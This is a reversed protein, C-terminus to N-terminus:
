RIPNRLVSRAYTDLDPFVAFPLGAAADADPWPAADSARLLQAIWSLYAQLPELHAGALSRADFRESRIRLVPRSGDAGAGTVADILLWPEPSEIRAVAVAEIQEFTLRRAGLGDVEVMLGGTDVATPVGELVRFANLSPPAAVPSPPRRPASEPGDAPQIPAATSASVHHRVRDLAAELRRRAGDDLGPQALLRESWEKGHRAGVDLALVAMQTQLGPPLKPFQGGGGDLLEAANRTQGERAYRGAVAMRLPGDPELDPVQFRLEEWLDLASGDGQQFIARLHRCMSPAARHPEGQATAFSWLSMAADVDAPNKVLLRELASWAEPSGEDILRHAAALEPHSDGGMALHIAPQFVRTELDFFRVGLAAVLGFVFGAVHVSYATGSVAGAWSAALASASQGAFWFGLMLWTPLGFVHRLIIPPLLFVFMIQIRTRWFRLAFAGMLGAIAGSAGVMPVFSGAHGSVWIMSAFMGAGLYLASYFLRGWLDELAPGLLWLLLMNGLLHAWGAHLFMHGLLDRARFEAPVLGLRGGHEDLAEQYAAELAELRRQHQAGGIPRRQQSPDEGTADRRRKLVPAAYERVVPGPELYPHDLYFKLAKTLAQVVEQDGSQRPVTVFLHALLCLAVVLLTVVPWRRVSHEDHSVPLFFFM